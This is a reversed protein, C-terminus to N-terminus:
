CGFDSKKRVSGRKGDGRSENAKTRELTPWSVVGGHSTLLKKRIIKRNNAVLEVAVLHFCVKKGNKKKGGEEGVWRVGKRLGFPCRVSWLGAARWDHLSKVFNGIIWQWFQSLWSVRPCSKRLRKGSLEERQQELLFPFVFLVFRSM